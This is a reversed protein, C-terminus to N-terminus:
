SIKEYLARAEENLKEEELVKKLVKAAEGRKGLTLYSRAVDVAMESKMEGENKRFVIILNIAESLQTVQKNDPEKKWLYELYPITAEFANGEVLTVVIKHAMAVTRNLSFAKKFYHKTKDLAGLQLALIATQTHFREKLPYELALNESVKLQGAKNGLREYYNYLESMTEDWSLTGIALKGGLKEPLSMTDSNISPLEEFFPWGEKLQIIEYYGALSDVTTVPMQEKLEDLKLIHDPKTGFLAKDVLSAYFTHGLLAYGDINPHVHELLLNNGVISNESADQFKKETDVLYFNQHRSVLEKIITNITDPARFRLMDYEKALSFHNKAKLFDSTEYAKIGLEYQHKASKEINISDSMFPVLDKENSFVTSIFVPISQKELIDAMSQLNSSFQHIGEQFRESGFAIQRDAVMKAMLTEREGAEKNFLNGISSLGTEVLQVLRYKKLNLAMNVMWPRRSISNVSGVGLAGYYENHGAYILVADPEYDILQKTFDLLTYSNVATLSLNIVEVEEELYTTNLAYQLWRHFSVNKQYPYGVATSAGLVFIRTTGSDKEKKLLEYYGSTADEKNGFYKKSINPNMVLFEPNGKAQVFLPYDTGYNVVRLAVEVLFLLLFVLLMAAMKFIRVKRKGLKKTKM